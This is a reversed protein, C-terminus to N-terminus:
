LMSETLLVLSHFVDFAIMFVFTANVMLMAVTTLHTVTLQMQSARIELADCWGKLATEFKAGGGTAQQFRWRFEGRGDMKAVAEALPMGKALAAVVGEAALKIHFNATGKAALRVAEPEAVGADLLLSFLSTFDRQLRWRSWPLLWALWDGVPLHIRALLSSLRPGAAHVFLILLPLLGILLLWGSYSSVHFSFWEFTITGESMDEFIMRFKPMIIKILLFSIWVTPLALLMLSPTLWSQRAQQTSRVDNLMRQCVPLVRSWGGIRDTLFIMEVIAPPLLRPVKAIAEQWTCGQEVWAAALHFRMSVSRDHCAAVSKLTDEPTIGRRIGSDILNLFIMARELRRRPLTFLFYIAYGGGFTIFLMVAMYLLMGLFGM